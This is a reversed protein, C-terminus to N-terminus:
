FDWLMIEKSQQNKKCDAKMQLLESAGNAFSKAHKAAIQRMQLIRHEYLKASLENMGASLNEQM